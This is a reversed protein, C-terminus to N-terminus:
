MWPLAIPHHVSPDFGSLVRYTLVDDVLSVIEIQAGQLTVVAPLRSAPPIAVSQDELASEFVGEVYAAELVPAQGPRHAYRVVIEISPPADHTAISYGAPTDIDAHFQVIGRKFTDIGGVWAISDLLGDENGDELCTRGSAEIGLSNRGRYTVDYSCFVRRGSSEAAFLLNEPAVSYTKSGRVVHVPTDLRVFPGHMM